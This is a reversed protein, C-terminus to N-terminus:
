KSYRSVVLSIPLGVCLMLTIVGIAVAAPRSAVPHPFASLPLVVLNMFAYVAVGYLLGAPVARRTLFSIKRSAAYYVAAAGFAIVFHLVTGLAATRLGGSYSDRGLLGSAIAQLLRVPGVGRLASTVLAAALDLVGAILGGWLITRYSKSRESSIAASAASM